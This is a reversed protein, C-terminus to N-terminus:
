LLVCYHFVNTLFFDHCQIRKDNNESFKKPLILIVNNLKLAPIEILTFYFSM